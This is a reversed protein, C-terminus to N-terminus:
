DLGIIVMGNQMRSKCKYKISMMMNCFGQQQNLGMLKM